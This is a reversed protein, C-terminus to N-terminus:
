CLITLTKAGLVSLYEVPSLVLIGETKFTNISVSIIRDSSLQYWEIFMRQRVQKGHANMRQCTQSTINWYDDLPINCM